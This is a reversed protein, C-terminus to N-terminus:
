CLILLGLSGETGWRMISAKQNRPSTSGLSSLDCCSKGFVTKPAGAMEPSGLAEHLYKAQLVPGPANAMHKCTICTLSDSESVLQKEEM